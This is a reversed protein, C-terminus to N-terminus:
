ERPNFVQPEGTVYYVAPADTDDVVTVNFFTERVPSEAQTAQALKWAYRWTTVDSDLGKKDLPPSHGTMRRGDEEYQFRVHFAKPKRVWGDAILKMGEAIKM